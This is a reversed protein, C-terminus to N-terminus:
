IGELWQVFESSKSKSVILPEKTAPNTKILLKRAFYQQAELISKRNILYQRNARFFQISDVKKELEDMTHNMTFRRSDTTFLFTVENEIYFFAIDQVSVPIIKDKHSVVFTQKATSKQLSNLLASVREYGDNKQQFFNEMRKVKELARQVSDNSFPKLIYDIGNTQFARLMYDEYATCFIIPFTTKVSEFIEFCLGDGLHIDFFALDPAPKTQLWAVTSQVSDLLAPIEADPAAELITRKLDLATPTEDEVILIRM